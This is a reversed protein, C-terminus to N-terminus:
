PAKNCAERYESPFMGCVDAKKQPPYFRSLRHALTDYCKKTGGRAALEPLACMPLIKEYENDPSGHEMMGNTASRICVEFLADDSVKACDTFVTKYEDLPALRQMMGAVIVGFTMGRIDPERISTVYEAAVPVKDGIVSSLKQGFEYYCAYHWRSPLTDCDKFPGKFDFSLGFNRAIMWDSMVNFVGERCEEIEQETRGPLAECKRLPDAVIEGVKGWESKKLTDAVAQIFGHGSAHYCIRAIDHMDGTLRERLYECTKMVYDSQPHDQILHELFGHFFGYGCSTTQQPFSMQQLSLGHTIFFGYYATDGLKHAHVHCGSAGFFPYTEYLYDFARYAAPIDGKRMYDLAVQILCNVRAEEDGENSPQICAAAARANAIREAMGSQWTYLGAVVVALVVGALIIKRKNNSWM